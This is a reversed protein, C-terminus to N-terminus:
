TVYNIVYYLTIRSGAIKLGRETRIIAAKENSISNM